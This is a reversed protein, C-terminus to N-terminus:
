NPLLELSRWLYWTAITCYPKWKQGIQEVAKKDPLDALQYARRVATRVGLDDAPLVDWRHLRFILLMQATWRGIGKVQTLQQIVAEDNMEKLEDLTPLGELVKQALDKLYVVKSRSLGARRLADDDTNLVDEATPFSQEPYLELFRRYIAAAAKGSIQQYIISECLSLFVDGTQQEQILTCDGVQDVIAALVADAQRLVEIATKYDPHTFGQEAIRNTKM